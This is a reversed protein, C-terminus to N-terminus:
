GSRRSVAPVSVDMLLFSVVGALLLDRKQGREVGIEDQLSRLAEGRYQYLTKFIDGCRHNHRIRNIRHSLTMCVLSLRLHDPMATAGELHVPLIAYVQPNPGLDLM